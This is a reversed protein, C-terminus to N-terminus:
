SLRIRPDLFAAALDALLNFVMVSIATILVTGLLVPYDRGIVADLILTGLGPWAFVKEVLVTGALLAPLQVAVATTLPVLANRLAHRIVVGGWSVGKATATTIFRQHLVELMGQRVYRMYPGALTAALVGAPLILHRITDLVTDSGGLTHMEGTPLVALKLGFVFVVLLGLFFGPISIAFMGGTGILYDLGRNHQLAALVGLILGLILAMVVATIILILSPGIREGFLQTVPVKQHYSFGLNGQLVNELWRLYQVPIPKDLGFAAREHAIYEQASPGSLQSPDLQMQVPDGPLARVFAFAVVTVGIFVPIAIVIRRVAYSLM